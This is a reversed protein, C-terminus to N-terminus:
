TIKKEKQNIKNWWEIENAAERLIEVFDKCKADDLLGSNITTRDCEISVEVCKGCIPRVKINMMFVVIGYKPM